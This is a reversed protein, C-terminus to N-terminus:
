IVGEIIGSETPGKFDLRKLDKVGAGKLMDMLQAESYSQGCPTGVLMNLSFVAPFLPGDMTDNLIFEHILIKGGPELVSVAKKIIERCADPGEGHLIHSLWAADYRGEISNENYNGDLFSIRDQLKFKEITKEAFPRTTPLDWVTAQLDRNNLCFHIAFTGPGGGLDLLHKRDSLDIQQALGPAISMAMTFMGMLFSERVQENGYSVSKRQSKGTLVAQDLKTWSEVLHHHHMIMHGVYGPADKVLFSLAADSNSYADKKKDLLGMAALANLLMTIGRKDGDLQQAVAEGSIRDKGIITFVNLKVGTHLVSTKWYNGSTELLSGPHWQQENM